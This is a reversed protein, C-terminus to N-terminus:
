LSSVLLGDKLELQRDCQHALNHDHTVLVLAASYDRRMEFMLEIISRGTDSDLNGTPEDAFLIKPKCVFARGLAVRQQEGGSLQEPYHHLRDKLGLRDLMIVASTNVDSVGALEAALCVNELATFGPLLHFSQFVFGVQGARLRAREDETLSNLSRGFLEVTGESGQDLGALLGLLTSKGSGSPGVVALAEAAHLQMSISSLIILQGQPGDVKKSLNTTSLIIDHVGPNESKM